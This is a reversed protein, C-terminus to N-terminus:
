GLGKRARHQQPLRARHRTGINKDYAKARSLHFEYSERTFAFIEPKRTLALSVAHAILWSLAIDFQPWYMLTNTQLFVYRLQLEAVDSVISNIDNVDSEIEYPIPTMGKGHGAHTVEIAHIYDSPLPSYRFAWEPPPADTVTVDDLPFTHTAFRWNSTSLIERLRSDYVLNCQKAETSDEGMAQITNDSGLNTLALNCIEVKGSAAM